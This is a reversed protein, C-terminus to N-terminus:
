GRSSRAPSWTRVAPPDDIYTWGMRRALARMGPSELAYHTAELLPLPSARAVAHKLDASLFARAGAAAAEAILEPTFASGGALGLPGPLCPDGWATVPCGLRRAIGPVSLPCDGVVGLSLGRCNALGLLGALADNIGGPARDFNTHLVYVHMGSSLVGRMLTALPGRVATVPTWLPTHHVVLADAGSAIARGVVAPTADVACCVHGIDRNGEVVLGIKDRDWEEALGAPAIGEMLSLFEALDM